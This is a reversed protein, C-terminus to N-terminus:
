KSNFIQRIQDFYPTADHVIDEEHSLADQARKRREIRELEENRWQKFAYLCDMIVEGNFNGYMKGRDAGNRDRFKGLKMMHFFLMLETIKMYHVETDILGAIDYFQSASANANGFFIASDLLYMSILGLANDLGYTFKVISLSPAVTTTLMADIGQREYYQKMNKPSFTASFRM